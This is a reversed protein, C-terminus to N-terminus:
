DLRVRLDELYIFTLISIRANLIKEHM